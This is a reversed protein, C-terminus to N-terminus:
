VGKEYDRVEKPEPKRVSIIRADEGRMAYVVVHLEGFVNMGISVFRQEGTASLDEITLGLPDDLVGDGETLSVGHKRLNATEKKPDFSSAM